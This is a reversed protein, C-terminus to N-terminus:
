YRKSARYYCFNIEYGLLDGLSTDSVLCSLVIRFFTDHSMIFAMPFSDYVLNLFSLFDYKGASCPSTSCPPWSTTSTQKQIMKPIACTKELLHQPQYIKSEKRAASLVYLLHVVSVLQICDYYLHVSHLDTSLVIRLCPPSTLGCRSTCGISLTYYVGHLFTSLYQLVMIFSLSNNTMYTICKSGFWMNVVIPFPQLVFYSYIFFISLM